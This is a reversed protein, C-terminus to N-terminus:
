LGKMTEGLGNAEDHLLADFDEQSVWTNTRFM